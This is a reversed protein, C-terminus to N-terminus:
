ECLTVGDRSVDINFIATKYFVDKVEEYVELNFGLLLGLLPTLLMTRLSSGPVGTNLHDSAEASQYV